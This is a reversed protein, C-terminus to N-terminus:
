SESEKSNSHGKPCTPSEDPAASVFNEKCTECYPRVAGEPLTKQNPLKRIVRAKRWIIQQHVLLGSGKWAQEVLAQRKHAHWQYVASNPKLHPLGAKLFKVYFEVSSQPDHYDDWNKDRNAKGSNGKSAPHNGGDYSVSYPPDTAVLSALEGDM